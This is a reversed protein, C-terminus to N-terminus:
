NSLASNLTSELDAKTAGPLWLGYVREVAGRDSRARHDRDQLIKLLGVSRNSNRADQPLEACGALHARFLGANLEDLDIVRPKKSV